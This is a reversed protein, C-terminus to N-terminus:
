GPAGGGAGFAPYGDRQGPGFQALQWLEVFRREGIQGRQSADPLM